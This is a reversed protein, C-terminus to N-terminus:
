DPVHVSRYATLTAPAGARHMNASVVDVVQDTLVDLEAVIEFLGLPSSAADNIESEIVQLQQRAEPDLYVMVAPQVVVQRAYALTECSSCENNVAVAANHPRFDSPHGEVVVVQMAVAVTRCGVCSSTATALNENSVTDAPAHAVQVSARAALADDVHNSVLVVNNAGGAAHAPAGTPVLAVVLAAVVVALIKPRM